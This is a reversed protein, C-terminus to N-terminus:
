RSEMVVFTIWSYRPFRYDPRTNSDGSPVGSTLRSILRLTSVGNDLLQSDFRASHVSKAMAPYGVHLGASNRRVENEILNPVGAQSDGAAVGMKGM